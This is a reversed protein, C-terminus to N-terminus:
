SRTLGRNPRKLCRRRERAWGVFWTKSPGSTTPLIWTFGYSRRRGREAVSGDQLLEPLFATRRQGAQPLQIGWTSPVIRLRQVRM